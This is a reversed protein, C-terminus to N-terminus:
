TQTQNAHRRTQDLVKTALNKVAMDTKKHWLARMMHVAKGALMPYEVFVIQVEFVPGIFVRCANYVHTQANAGRGIVWRNSPYCSFSM